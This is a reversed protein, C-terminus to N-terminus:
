NGIYIYIYIYIINIVRRIRHGEPNRLESYINFFCPQAAFAFVTFSVADATGLNMVFYKIGVSSDVKDINKAYYFPMEVIILFVTYGMTILSILSFISLSNLDKMLCLPLLIVLAVLIPHLTMAWHNELISSSVGFEELFGVALDRCMIQYITIVGILYVVRCVEMIYGLWKGNTRRCLSMYNKAKTIKAARIMLYFAWLSTFLGTVSLLSGLIVGGIRMVFPLSLIGIYIYIYIYLTGAGIASASLNYVSRAVTAHGLKQMIKTNISPKPDTQEKPFTLRNSYGMPFKIEQTIDISGSDSSTSESESHESAIELREMEGINLIPEIDINEGMNNNNGGKM